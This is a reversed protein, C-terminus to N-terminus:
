PIDALAHFIAEREHEQMGESCRRAMYYVTTRWQSVSKNMGRLEEWRHCSGCTDEFLNRVYQPHRGRYRIIAKLTGGDIWGRDKESMTMVVKVWQVPDGISGYARELGHCRSCKKEFVARPAMSADPPPATEAPSAEPSRFTCTALRELEQSSIWGKEKDSMVVVTKVWDGSSGVVAYVRGLDHCRSCKKDVLPDGPASAEGGPRVATLSTSTERVPRVCGQCVSLLILSGVLMRSSFAANM